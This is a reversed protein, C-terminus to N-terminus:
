PRITWVDQLGSIDILRMVRETPAQLVVASGADECDHGLTILAGLGSSDMFTLGSLDLVLEPGGDALQARASELFRDRSELDLSGELQLSTRSETDTHATITLDV